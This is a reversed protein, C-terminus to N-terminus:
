CELLMLSGSNERSQLQSRGASSWGRREGEFELHHLWNEAEASPVQFSIQWEGRDFRRDVVELLAGVGDAVM